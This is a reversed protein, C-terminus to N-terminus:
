MVEKSMCFSTNEGNIYDKIIKKSAKGTYSVIKAYHIIAFVSIVLIIIVVLLLKLDIKKDNNKNKRKGIDTRTEKKEIM